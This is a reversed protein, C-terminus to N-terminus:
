SSQWRSIIIQRFIRELVALWSHWIDCAAALSFLGLFVRIVSYHCDCNDIFLIFNMTIAADHKTAADNTVENM